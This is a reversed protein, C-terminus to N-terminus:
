VFCASILNVLLGLLYIIEDIPPISVIIHKYVSICQTSCYFMGISARYSILDNDM